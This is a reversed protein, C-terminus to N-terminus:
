VGVWRERGSTIDPLGSESPSTSRCRRERAIAALDKAAPRVSAASRTSSGRAVVAPSTPGRSM